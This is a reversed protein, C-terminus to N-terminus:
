DFGIAGKLIAQDTFSRFPLTADLIAILPSIPQIDLSLKEAV